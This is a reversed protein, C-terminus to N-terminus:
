DADIEVVEAEGRQERVRYEAVAIVQQIAAMAQRGRQAIAALQDITLSDAKSSTSEQICRAFSGVDATAMTMCANLDLSAFKQYRGTARLIASFYEIKDPPKGRGHHRQSKQMHVLKVVQSWLPDPLTRTQNPGTAKYLLADSVGLVKAVRKAGLNEMAHRVAFELTGPYNLNAM